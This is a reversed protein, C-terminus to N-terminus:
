DSINWEYADSITEHRRNEECQESHNRGSNQSKNQSDFEITNSVLQNVTSPTWMLEFTVSSHIRLMFFVFCSSIGVVVVVVVADDDKLLPFISGRKKEEEEEKKGRNKVAAGEGGAVFTAM